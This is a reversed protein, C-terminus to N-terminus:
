GNGITITLRPIVTYRVNVTSKTYNHDNKNHVENEPYKQYNKHKLWVFKEKMYAHVKLHWIFMLILYTKIEDYFKLNFFFFGTLYKFFITGCLGWPVRWFVRWFVRWPRINLLVVAYSTGAWIFKINKMGQIHWSNQLLILM